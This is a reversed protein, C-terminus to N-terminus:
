ADAYEFFAHYLVAAAAMTDSGSTGTREISFEVVDDVAFNGATLSITPELKRQSATPAADTVSGTEQDASPDLSESDDGGIATYAVGWVVNGSTATSTWVLGIKPSGVYNKPVRFRGGLKIVTGSDAFKFVLGPYRDNTQTVSAPEPTVNGSTDPLTPFGLIPIRHTAM